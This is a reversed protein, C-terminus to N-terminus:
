LGHILYSCALFPFYPVKTNRGVKKVCILVMCCLSLLLMSVCFLITGRRYGLCFGLQVLVIGDAYGVRETMWALFLMFFGPLLGLMIEAYSLEGALCRFIGMGVMLVGGMILLLIPVRRKKYDWMGLVGLYLLIVIEM